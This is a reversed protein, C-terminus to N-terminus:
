ESKNFLKGFFNKYLDQSNLQQSIDFISVSNLSNPSVAFHGTLPQGDESYGYANPNDIAFDIPFAWGKQNIELYEKPDIKDIYGLMALLVNRAGKEGLSGIDNFFLEFNRQNYERLNERGGNAIM